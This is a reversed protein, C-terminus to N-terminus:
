LYVEGLDYTFHGGDVLALFEKEKFREPMWKEPPRPTSRRTM